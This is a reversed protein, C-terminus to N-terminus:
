SGQRTPDLHKPTGALSTTPIRSQFSRSETLPTRFSTPKRGESNLLPLARDSRGGIYPKGKRSSSSATDTPPKRLDAINEVTWIIFIHISMWNVLTDRLDPREQHGEYPFKIEGYRFAPVDLSGLTPNQNWHDDPLFILAGLERQRDSWNSIELRVGACTKTCACKIV